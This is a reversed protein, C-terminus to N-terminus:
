RVLRQKEKNSLVKEKLYRECFEKVDKICQPVPEEFQSETVHYTVHGDCVFACESVRRLSKIEVSTTSHTGM